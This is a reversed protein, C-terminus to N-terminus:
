LLHHLPLALFPLALGIVYGWYIETPRHVQLILRATGVLGAVVLSLWVMSLLNVQLINDGPLFLNIRAYPYHWYLIAFMATMGSAGIAHFSIKFQVNIVFAVFIALTCALSMASFVQPISPNELLNKTLWSYMVGGAIYPGIRQMRERLQLDGILKLRYMLFVALGPLLLSTSAVVLLLDMKDSLRSVGFVYPNASLLFVLTYTLVTLPHFVLSVAQAWFRTVRM